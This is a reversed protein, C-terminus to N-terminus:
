IEEIEEIKEQKAETQSNDTEKKAELFQKKVSDLLKQESEAINDDAMAAKEMLKYIKNRHKTNEPMRIVLRGNQAMNFMQQLNQVKFGWKKAIQKAFVEEEKDFVGDAAIMVMVNNLAFDRVDYMKDLMEPDIKYVFESSHDSLYQQYESVSIIDTIIWENKTSNLPSDCYGCKIELTNEAAAGCNPCNHTYLSGKSASAQKDRSLLIIETKSIVAQDIKEAKGDTLRVRQFSSRISVSLINKQKEERVSLLSVDNLYIRNYVHNEGSAKLKEFLENSVFRRMITPDGLTKATLIQLYGNSAKDEILEVSFDENEGILEQIKGTLTSTKSMKPHTGIYDDAQTIESLVWDFEGSNLMSGCYECKSVEGMKEPLEAGCNPCGPSNYMDKEAAGRKRLFSWYEVFEESGGSNLSSDLESIFKDVISAHIAVHIIDYSGDTEVKDLYINKVELKEITNKQKLIDMMKFQTNFRQYIGDSMFKRVKSIDKNQWGEQIQIFATKVKKKFEEENFAPNNKTFKDYGKITKPAGGSPLNNLVTRQKAKKRIILAIVIIIGVVIFNLPFPLRILLHIIIYVLAGIGDGGGGGGSRGGGGGARAFLFSVCFILILAIVGLVLLKKTKM